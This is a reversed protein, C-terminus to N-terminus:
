TPVMEKKDEVQYGEMEKHLSTILYRILDSNTRHYAKALERLKLKEEKNVRVVISLNRSQM